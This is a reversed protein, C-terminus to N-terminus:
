YTNRTGGLLAVCGKALEICCLGLNLDAWWVEGNFDSLQLIHVSRMYVREFHYTGSALVNLTCLIVESGSPLVINKTIIGHVRKVIVLRLINSLLM